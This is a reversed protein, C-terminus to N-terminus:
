DAAYGCLACCCHTVWERQALNVTARKTTSCVKRARAFKEGQFGVDKDGLLTSKLESTSGFNKPELGKVKKQSPVFLRDAPPVSLPLSGLTQDPTIVLPLPGLTLSHTHLCRPPFNKIAWGVCDAFVVHRELIHNNPNRAEKLSANAEGMRQLAKSTLARSLFM